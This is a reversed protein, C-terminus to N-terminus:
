STTWEPALLAAAPCILGNRGQDHGVIPTGCENCVRVGDIVEFGRPDVWPWIPWAGNVGAAEDEQGTRLFYARLGEAQRAKAATQVRMLRDLPMGGVVPYRYGLKWATRVAARADQEAGHVRNEPLDDARYHRAVDALKRSGKRYPNVLKDLVFPDIVPGIKGLTLYRGGHRDVQNPIKLRRLERDLVTLDFPANYIVVPWYRRWAERVRTLIAPVARAPLTGHRAVYDDTMGHVDTAEPEIPVGPNVIWSDSGNYERGAQVTIVAAGVIRATEPDKSTTELDFACMPGRYWPGIRHLKPDTDKPM